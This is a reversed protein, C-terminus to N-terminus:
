RARLPAASGRAAPSRRSRRTGTGVIGSIAARARGTSGGAGRSRTGSGRGARRRDRGRRRRRGSRHPCRTRPRAPWRVIREPLGCPSTGNRTSSVHRALSKSASRPNELVVDERDPRRDPRFASRLGPDHRAAGAPEADGLEVLGAHLAVLRPDDADHVAPRHEVVARDEVDRIHDPRRAGPGIVAPDLPRDGAGVAPRDLLAADRRLRAEVKTPMGNWNPRADIRM